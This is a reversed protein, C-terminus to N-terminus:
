KIVNFNITYSQNDQSEGRSYLCNLIFSFKDGNNYNDLTFNFILLKYSFGFDIETPEVLNGDINNIYYNFYSIDPCWLLLKLTLNNEKIDFNIINTNLDQNCIQILKNKIILEIPYEYKEEEIRNGIKSRFTLFLKSNILFKEKFFKLNYDNNASNKLNFYFKLIQNYIYYKNSINSKWNILYKTKIEEIQNNFSDNNQLYYKDSIFLYQFIDDEEKNFDFEVKFLYGNEEKNITEQFSDWNEKIISKIGGIALYSVPITLYGQGEEIEGKYKARWINNICIKFKGEKFDFYTLNKDILSTEENDLIIISNNESCSVTFIEDYVSFCKTYNETKLQEKLYLSTYESNQDQTQYLLIGEKNDKIVINKEKSSSSVKSLIIKNPIYQAM